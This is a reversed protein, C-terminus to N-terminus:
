HVHGHGGAGKTLEAKLNFAGETVITENGQLGGEIIRGVSLTAGVEVDVARIVIHSEGPEEPMLVFVVHRGELLQVADAPVVIREEDSQIRVLGQVFMNPRLIGEPNPIEARVRVTRLQDDVQDAIFTIRGPFDRGPFVPTRIVIEADRSLFPMQEEYADLRAWLSSLDSVTFLTHGAEAHEGLVAHRHIVVGGIPTRLPLPPDIAAHDEPPVSVDVARELERIREEDLGMSHLTVEAARRSALHQEFVAQRRSFEREEIARSDRLVRAREFDKRSLEAQAFAQIFETQARTFEPSNLTALLQGPGVRSGLDVRVSSIQGEVLPAILATRNENLALAGPLELEASTSTSGVAGIKVGWDQVQQSELHLEDSHEEAQAESGEEGPDGGSCGGLFYGGLVLAASTFRLSFAGPKM